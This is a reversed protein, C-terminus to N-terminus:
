ERKKSSFLAAAIILLFPILSGENPPFYSQNQSVKDKNKKKKDEEKEEKKKTEVEEKVEEKVQEKTKEKLKLKKIRIDLKPRYFKKTAFRITKLNEEITAKIIKNQMLFATATTLIGAKLLVNFLQETILFAGSINNRKILNRIGLFNPIYFIIPNYNTALRKKSSTGQNHLFALLVEYYLKKDRSQLFTARAIKTYVNFLEFRNKELFKLNLYTLQLFVFTQSSANKYYLKKINQINKAYSKITNELVRDLLQFLGYTKFGDKSVVTKKFNSEIKAISFTYKEIDIHKSLYNYEKTKYQKYAKIGNLIEDRIMM